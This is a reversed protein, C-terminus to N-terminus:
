EWNKRQHAYLTDSKADQFHERAIPQYAAKKEKWVKPALAIVNGMHDLATGTLVEVYLPLHQKPFQEGLEITWIHVKGDSGATLIKSGDPSFSAATVTGKHYFPPRVPSGDIVHWLKAAGDLGYTLLLSEDGNLAIGRVPLEHALPQSAPEGDRASWLRAKGDLSYTAVLNGDQLFQAGLVWGEHFMPKGIIQGDEANWLRTSGDESFTLIRKEAKDFLAGRVPGGHRMPQAAPSGDKTFWLRASGDDSYTLIKQQDSSFLAGRITADHNMVPGPEGDRIRWLKATGDDGFTLIKIQDPSFLAGRVPGNHRFPEQLTPRNDSRWLRATGDEGFTLALSDDKNFTAGLIDGDHQLPPTTASGDDANWIRATGDTAYSFVLNENHSYFAKKVPAKHKMSQTLASGNEASWIMISGDECYTLVRSEDSNFEAGTVPAGHLITQLPEGDETRWLRATKDKGFSLVRSGDANFQAGQVWLDHDLTIEQGQVDLIQWVRASGDEGYTVIRHNFFAAGSVPAGHFMPPGIPNGSARDWLRAAGDQSHTLILSQDPNFFAGLVPGEHSLPSTAPTGDTNWLRATGDQSWSLIHKLDKSFVAGSVQDKHKMHSGVGNGDKEWLKLYGNKGYSLMLLNDPSFVLGTVPAGHKIPGGIPKGNARWLRVLGDSGYTALTKRPNNWYAGQLNDGHKLAPTAPRGEMSWFRATGDESCTLIRSEDAIFSASLVPGSHEMIRGLPLSTEATWIRATGDESFTLVLEEDGSFAAGRVAQDHRMSPGAPSGDEAHWLQVVGDKGYTLVLSEDRNFSASLVADDHFMPPMAPQGDAVRWIRASGDEACSLILSSDRNFVAHNVPEGHDMSALMKGSNGDWLKLTGDRSYSLYKQGDSTTLVGTVGDSHDLVASLFIPNVGQHINIMSSKLIGSPPIAQFGAQALLQLAKLPQDEGSADMAQQWSKRALDNQTKRHLNDKNRRQEETANWFRLAFWALGLVAVIMVLMLLTAKKKKPKDAVKEPTPSDPPKSDPPKAWNERIVGGPQRGASGPPRSWTNKKGPTPRRTHLPPRGKHQPGNSGPGMKGKKQGQGGQEKEAKSGPKPRGKEKPNNGQPPLREIQIEPKATEKPPTVRPIPPLAGGAEQVIQEISLSDHFNPPPIEFDAEEPNFTAQKKSSEDKKPMLEDDSIPKPRFGGPVKKDEHLGPSSSGVTPSKMESIDPVARQEVPRSNKKKEHEAKKLFDLALQFDPDYLDGWAQNPPVERLWRLGETLQAGRWLEGNGAEFARADNALKRFVMAREAEQDAWELLKPWRPIISEYTLELLPNGKPLEVDPNEGIIRILLRDKERFKQVLGWIKERSEGIIEEIQSLRIKRAYRRNESDTEVLCQFLRQSLWRMENTMGIMAYEGHFAIARDLKQIAEYQMNDIIPDKIFRKWHHWLRCLTHQLVPLPIANEEMDNLIWGTLRPTLETGYLKLPEKLVDRIQTRDLPPVLFRGRDIRELLGNMQQCYPLYDTRIVFAVYIPYVSQDVLSLLISVMNLADESHLNEAVRFLDEFQDVVILLNTDGRSFIRETWELVTQMRNARLLETEQKSPNGSSTSSMKLLANAMRGMPNDAPNFVCTRWQSRGDVQFGSRLTPFLGARILSSKGVGSEGLVAIFKSKQLQHSLDETQKERGMFVSHEKETYPRLGVFPADPLKEPSPQKM